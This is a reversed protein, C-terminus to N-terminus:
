ISRQRCLHASGIHKRMRMQLERRARFLRSKVTTLTLGLAQAIEKDALDGITHLHWVQGLRKNMRATWAFLIQKLERQSCIEEPTYGGAPIELPTTGEETDNGIDLSTTRWPKARRAMLAQNISIRTLWTVFSSDGRFSDLHKFANLFADQVADEADERNNTIQHAAKFLRGQHRKVLVEFARPDGARLSSVLAADADVSRHRCRENIQTPKPDLMRNPVASPAFQMHKEGYKEVAFRTGFTKLFSLSSQVIVGHLGSKTAQSSETAAKRCLTTITIPLREESWWCESFTEAAQLPKASWNCTM